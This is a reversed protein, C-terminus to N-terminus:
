SVVVDINDGDFEALEDWAIEVESDGPPDSIGVVVSLIKTGPVSSIPVYLESAYVSEGPVYGNQDYNTDTIGVASAGSAAWALIAAKIRLAGDSSWLSANIVEVEVGVYVPVSSPRSFRMPYGVLSDYVVVETSGYTDAGVPLRNWLENAIEEDEGGRVVVAVTKAPIDRGDTFLTINQYARCFTVGELNAIGAYISEIISQAPAATSYRRRTRLASDAEELSGPTAALPNTVTDWGSIPTLIKVLTSADVEIPGEEACTAVVVAEGAEDFQLTPLLWVASDIMDSVQRGEPLVLGPTGTLSLAVVSAVGAQRTLGNLQVLGSLSPGTSLVPNFQNYAEQLQEWAESLADAYSNVVQVLPDNEDFLSPTLFEGTTPDQVTSLAADLDELIDALRKLRFGQSTVGFEGM